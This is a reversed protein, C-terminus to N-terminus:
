FPNEKKKLTPLPLVGTLVFRDTLKETEKEVEAMKLLNKKTAVKGQVALQLRDLISVTDKMKVKTQLEGIFTKQALILM